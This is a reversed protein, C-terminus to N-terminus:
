RTIADVAAAGEIRVLIEGPICVITQGPHSVWGQNVCVQGSCHAERMRVRDGEIEVTAAGVRGQVVFTSKGAVPLTIRRIIAGRVVVIAQTTNVASSFLGYMGMLSLLSVLLIGALLFKDARNM